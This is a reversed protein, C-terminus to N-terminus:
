QSILNVDRSKRQLRAKAENILVQQRDSEIKEQSLCLNSYNDFVYGTSCTVCSNTSSRYYANSGYTNNCYTEYNVCKKGLETYGRNCVFKSGDYTANEKKPKICRDGEQIYGTNCYFNEFGYATSNAPAVKCENEKKYYGTDCYLSTGILYGGTVYKLSSGSSYSSGASSSNYSPSSYSGSYYSGTQNSEYLAKGEYYNPDTIYTPTDWTSGRTGYSSNYLGQSPTWGYNDYKLGNPNSRVHPAVYTGNSRYYGRVNVYASAFIPLMLFLGMFLISTLKKM